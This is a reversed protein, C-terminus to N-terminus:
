LTSASPDHMPQARLVPSSRIAEHFEQVSLPHRALSTQVPPYQYLGANNISIPVASQIEADRSNIIRLYLEANNLQPVANIEATTLSPKAPLLRVPVKWRGAIVRNHCDFIQLKLWGQPALHTVEHGYIDYGGSAQVQIVLSISSAPQVEPVAQKTALIAKQEASHQSSSIPDCYVPPLISPSGLCVDGSYVGVMLRCVRYSPCLGLLFDYFVMFGTMPDYPSPYLGDPEKMINRTLAPSKPAELPPFTLTSPAMKRSMIKKRLHNIEIEHKLLEVDMKAARMEQEAPRFNQTARSKRKKLELKMIEEELHQNELETSVLEKSLYKGKDRQRKTKPLPIKEAQMELKIAADLLHQLHALIEPNKGGSQLYSIHLTSIETSLVGCSYVPIYEIIREETNAAHLNSHSRQDTNQGNQQLHDMLSQLSATNRQEHEKLELLTRELEAVKGHHADLEQLKYEIEQRQMDLQKHGDSLVAVEALDRHAHHDQSRESYDTPKSYPDNQSTQVSKVAQTESLSQHQQHRKIMERIKQSESQSVAGICFKEKHKMLYHMSRFTMNCKTCILPDM